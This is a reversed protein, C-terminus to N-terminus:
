MQHHAKWLQKEKSDIIKLRELLKSTDVRVPLNIPKDLDLKTNAWEVAKQAQEKTIDGYVCAYQPFRSEILAAIALLPIHYPLGQTKSYFVKSAGRESNRLQYLLIDEEQIDEKRKSYKDINSSLNFSEGTEKSELDGNIQWYRETEGYVVLRQEKTPELVLQKYDDMQEVSLTAFPYAQILILTEEFVKEWEDQNIYDSVIELGLYVGM